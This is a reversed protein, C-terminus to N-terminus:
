NSAFLRLGDTENTLKDCSVVKYCKKLGGSCGHACCLWGQGCAEATQCAGCFSDEAFQRGKERFLEPALDPTAYSMLVPNAARTEGAQVAAAPVFLALSIFLIILRVPM